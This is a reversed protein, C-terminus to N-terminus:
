ASGPRYKVINTKEQSPRYTVVVDLIGKSKSTSQEIDLINTGPSNTQVNDRHKTSPNYSNNDTNYPNKDTNFPSSSTADTGKFTSGGGDPNYVPYDSSSIYKKITHKYKDSVSVSYLM